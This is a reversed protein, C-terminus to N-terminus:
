DLLQGVLVEQHAYRLDGVEISHNALADHLVKVVVQQGVGVHEHAMCFREIADVVIEAQHVKGPRGGVELRLLSRLRLM